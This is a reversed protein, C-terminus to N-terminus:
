KDLSKIMAIRESKNLDSTRESDIIAKLEPLKDDPDTEIYGLSQYWPGNFAVHKFTTLSIANFNHHKAWEEASNMLLKGVGKGQLEYDVSVEFIHGHNDVMGLHIFGALTHDNVAVFISKANIGETIDRSNSSPRETVWEMGIDSFKRGGHQEIEIIRPIDDYIALRIKMNTSPM